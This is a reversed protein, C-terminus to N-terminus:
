FKFSYWLLRAEASAAMVILCATMAVLRGRAISSRSASALANAILLAIGIALVPYFPTLYWPAKTQMVTPVVVAVIAWSLLVAAPRHGRVFTWVNALRTRGISTVLIATFGALLWDFQNRHLINVYYWLGGTHGELHTISQQVLDYGIMRDFFEWGDL